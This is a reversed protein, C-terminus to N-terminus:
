PKPNGNVRFHGNQAETVFGGAKTIRARESPNNPKHDQSLALAKGKRCMVQKTKPRTLSREREREEGGEGEGRKKKGGDVV